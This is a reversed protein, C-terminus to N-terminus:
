RIVNERFMIQYNFQIILYPSRLEPNFESPRHFIPDEYSHFRIKEIIGGPESLGERIQDGDKGWLRFKSLQNDEYLITRIDYHIEHIEKQSEPFMTQNTGIIVGLIGVFTEEGTMGPDNLRESFVFGLWPWRAQIVMDSALYKSPMEPTIIHLNEIAPFKEAWLENYEVQRPNNDVDPPDPAIALIVNIITASAAEIIINEKARTIPNGSEDKPLM